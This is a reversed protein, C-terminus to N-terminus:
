DLRSHIWQEAILCAAQSDIHEKKIRNKMLGSERYERLRSEAARSTFSEDVRSVPLFYRKELNNAFDDAKTSITNSKNPNPLGVILQAPNWEDILNDMKNWPLRSGVVLTNLPTATGTLLNGSAIGIRKLGFDYAILLNENAKSSM